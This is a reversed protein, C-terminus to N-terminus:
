VFFHRFLVQLSVLEPTMQEEETTSVGELM